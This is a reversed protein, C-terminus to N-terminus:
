FARTAEAGTPRSSCSGAEAPLGAGSVRHPGGTEGDLNYWTKEKREIPNRVFRNRDTHLLEKEGKTGEMDADGAAAHETGPSLLIM